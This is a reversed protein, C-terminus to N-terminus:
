KKSAKFADVYILYHDVYGRLRVTDSGRKMEKFLPREVFGAGQGDRVVTDSSDIDTNFGMNLTRNNPLIQCIDEIHGKGSNNYEVTVFCGAKPTSTKYKDDVKDFVRQTGGGEPYNWLKRPIDSLKAMADMKDQQGFQCYADGLSGGQRTILLDIGKSRNKGATERLKEYAFQTFPSVETKGTFVAKNLEVYQERTLLGDKNEVPVGPKTEEKSPLPKYEQEHSRLFMWIASLVEKLFKM